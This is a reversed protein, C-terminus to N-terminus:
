ALQAVMRVVPGLTQEPGFEQEILALCALTTERYGQELGQAAAILEDLDNCYVGAGYRQILGDPDVRSIVPTGVSWAELFTNPFGETASTCVLARARRYLERIEDPAVHDRYSLNPLQGVAQEVEAGSPDGAMAQGVMLFRQEPLRRALEVFELPKKYVRELRGVWLLGDRQEYPLFDSESLAPQILNRALPALRGSQAELLSQQRITQALLGDAVRLARRFLRNILRPHPWDPLVDSDSTIAYVYRLPFVPRVVCLLIALPLNGRVYFLAGRRRYVERLLRLYKLPIRLVSPLSSGATFSTRCEFGEWETRPPQGFDAVIFSVQYGARALERALLVQQREAGGLPSRVSDDFYPYVYPALFCVHRM